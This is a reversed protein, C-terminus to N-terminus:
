FRRPIKVENAHRWAGAEQSRETGLHFALAFAMDSSQRSEYPNAM